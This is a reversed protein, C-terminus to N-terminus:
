KPCQLGALNESLLQGMVSDLFVTSAQIVTLVRLALFVTESPDTPFDSDQDPPLGYCGGLLTEIFQSVETVVPTVEGNHFRHLGSVPFIYHYAKLCLCIKTLFKHKNGELPRKFCNCHQGFYSMLTSEYPLGNQWHSSLSIRCTM